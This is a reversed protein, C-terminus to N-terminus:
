NHHIRARPKGSRGTPAQELKHLSQGDSEQCSKLEEAKRQEQSSQRCLNLGKAMTGWAESARGDGEVMGWGAM